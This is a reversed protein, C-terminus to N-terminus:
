SPRGCIPAEILDPEEADLVETRARAARGALIAAIDVKQEVTVNAKVHERFRDPRRAKLMLELLRDSYERVLGVLAGGQYVPRDTGEIARRRAEDELVDSGMEYANDWAEAFVANDKRRQYVTARSFGARGAAASVSFGEALAELFATEAAQTWEHRMNSNM